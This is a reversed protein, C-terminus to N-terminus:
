LIFHVALVEFKVEGKLDGLAKLEAKQNKGTVVGFFFFVAMESLGSRPHSINKIALQTHLIIANFLLSYFFHM